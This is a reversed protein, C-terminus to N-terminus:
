FMWIIKLTVNHMVSSYFVLSGKVLRDHNSWSYVTDDVTDLRNDSYTGIGCSGNYEYVLFFDRM